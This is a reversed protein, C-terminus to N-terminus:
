MLFLHLVEPSRPDALDATVLARPSSHSLCCFPVKGRSLTCTRIFRYHLFPNQSVSLGVSATTPGRALLTVLNRCSFFWCPPGGPAWLRPGGLGPRPFLM